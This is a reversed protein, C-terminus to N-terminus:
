MPDTNEEVNEQFFSTLKKRVASIYGNRLEKSNKSTKITSIDDKNISHAGEETLVNVYPGYKLIIGYIITGNKLYLVSKRYRAHYFGVCFAIDTFILFALTLPILIIERTADYIYFGYIICIIILPALRTLLFNILYKLAFILGNLVFKIFSKKAYKCLNSEKCVDFYDLSKLGGRFKAASYHFLFYLILELILGLTVLFIGIESIIYTILKEIIPNYSSLEEFIFKVFISHFILEEFIFKVFLLILYPELIYSIIFLVGFFYHSVIGYETTQTDGYRVGFYYIIASILIVLVSLNEPDSIIDIWM